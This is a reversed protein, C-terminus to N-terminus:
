YRTSVCLFNVVRAANCIVKHLMLINGTEGNFHMDDKGGKKWITGTHYKKTPNFFFHKSDKSLIHKAVVMACDYSDVELTAVAKKDAFSMGGVPVYPSGHEAYMFM